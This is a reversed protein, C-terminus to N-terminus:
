NLTITYLIIIPAVKDLLHCDGNFPKNMTYNTNQTVGVHAQCATKTRVKSSLIHQHHRHVEMMRYMYLRNAFDESKTVLVEQFM